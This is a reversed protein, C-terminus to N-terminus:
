ADFSVPPMPSDENWPEAVPQHLHFGQALEFGLQRCQRAEADNSIGEALTVIGMNKSITLLAELLQSKHSSAQDIGQIFSIDFKLYDPPAEVLELLRAQGAGFDDYALGIDLSDLISRVETLQAIDSIAHEHIELVLPADPFQERLKRISKFLRRSNQMEGPHTNLFLPLTVGAAMADCVGRLRLLESLPVELGISEAIHFLESPGVPLDPHDGRGLIEYGKLAGDQLSIIGQFVASTAQSELLDELESIGMPLRQPLSEFGALTQPSLVKESAQQRVERILRCEFGALHLIDGHRLPMTGEVRHHNVFTGNTSNLDRVALEGDGQEIIEAHIRSVGETDLCFDLDEQRGIQFPFRGISVRTLINKGDLYGELYWRNM